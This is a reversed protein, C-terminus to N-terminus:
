PLRGQFVMTDGVVREAEISRGNDELASLREVLIRLKGNYAFRAVVIEPTARLVELGSVGPANNLEDLILEVM